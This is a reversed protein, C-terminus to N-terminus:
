ELRAPDDCVLVEKAFSEVRAAEGVECCRELMLLVEDFLFLPNRKQAPFFCSTAASLRLVSDLELKSDQRIIHSVNNSM